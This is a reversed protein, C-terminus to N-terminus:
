CCTHCGGELIIKMAVTRSFVFTTENTSSVTMSNKYNKIKTENEDIRQHNAIRSFNIKNCFKLMLIYGFFWDKQVRVCNGTVLIEYLSFNTKFFASFWMYVLLTPVTFLPDRVEWNWPAGRCFYPALPSFHYM